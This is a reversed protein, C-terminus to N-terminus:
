RLNDVAAREIALGKEYREMFAAFGRVDEAKPEVRSGTNDAFVRKELYTELTEGDKKQRICAALLAL